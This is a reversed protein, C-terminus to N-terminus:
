HTTNNSHLVPNGLLPCVIVSTVSLDWDISVGLIGGLWGDEDEGLGPPLPLRVSIMKRDVNFDFRQKGSM